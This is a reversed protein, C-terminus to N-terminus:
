ISWRNMRVLMRCIIRAWGSFAWLPLQPSPAAESIEAM